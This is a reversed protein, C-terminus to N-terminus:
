KVTFDVKKTCSNGSIKDTITMQLTYSGAELDRTEQTEKDGQKILVTQKMPLPHSVLPADYLAPQFRIAAEEGKKVEYQCEISYKNEANPQAGFVYFFVDLADGATFVNDINPTIQLISYSFNGKHLATRQEAAPLNQIDKVFFAPTTDLEKTFSKPDPLAFEFYQTGVKKLDQSTVAMALLYNGPVLPYGFSYWEEKEPDYGASDAEMSAPIYVERPVPPPAGSEIKNFELFVHFNAKLKPQAAAAADAAPAIAVPAYGLDANKIKLFLISYLANQAPLYTSKIISFPIDLRAQRAPLGQHLVDKIEKPIYIRPPEKKQEKERQVAAESFNPAAIMSFVFGALLASAILKIIKMFGGREFNIRRM